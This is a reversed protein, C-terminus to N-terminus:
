FRPRYPSGELQGRLEAAFREREPRTGPWAQELFRWAVRPHGSYILDLMTEWLAPTPESQTRRLHAARTRLVVVSPAARQMLKWAPRFAGRVSRLVVRPAPSDAFSARWGAFSWDHTELELRGDGDLDVFRASEDHTAPLTRLVPRSGLELLHIRNACHVGGTWEWVVLERRGPASVAGLRYRLPGAARRWPGIAFGDAKRGLLLKGDRRVALTAEGDAAGITVLHGGISQRWPSQPTLAEPHVIQEGGGIAIAQDKAPGSTANGLPVLVAAGVALVGLWRIGM